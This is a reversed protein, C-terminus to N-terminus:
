QQITVEYQSIKYTYGVGGFGTRPDASNAPNGVTVMELNVRSM